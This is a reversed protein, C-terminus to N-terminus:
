GGSETSNLIDAVQKVARVAATASNVQRVAAQAETAGPGIIGLGIPKRAKLQLEVLARHVVHGMVEGHLTEGREIYGLAIVGLVEPRSIEVDAVLPLEYCGPVRLLRRFPLGLAQMEDRAVKIMGDMLKKNFEAAIISYGTTTPMAAKESTTM